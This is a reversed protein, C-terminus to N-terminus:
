SPAFPRPALGLYLDRTLMQALDEAEGEKTGLPGDVVLTALGHTSAWASIAFEHPDGERLGGATQADRVAGLLQQFAAEAAEQVAGANEGGERLEPRWMLAFRGPHDIAFAVYALGTRRFGDVPDAADTRAHQLLATLRQFSDVVLAAILSAKTDFHHYPAAHSVGVRRALGRLSLKDLGHEAVTAAAAELLADRLQGHHYGDTGIAEGKM